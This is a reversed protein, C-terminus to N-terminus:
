STRRIHDRLLMLGILAFPAAIPVAIWPLSVAVDSAVLPVSLRSVRVGEAEPTEIKVSVNWQGAAPLVFKASQLLKNSANARSAIATVTTGTVVHDCRVTITAPYIVSRNIAEQLLFSVDVPGVALPTPSTFMTIRRGDIDQTLQVKGGDAHALLPLGIALVFTAIFLRLRDASKHERNALAM